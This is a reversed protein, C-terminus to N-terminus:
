LKPCVALSKVEHKFVLLELCVRQLKGHRPSIFKSGPMQLGLKFGQGKKGKESM